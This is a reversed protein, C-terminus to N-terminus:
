NAGGGAYQLYFSISSTVDEEDPTKIIWTQGNTADDRGSNILLLNTSCQITFRYMDPPPKLRLFIFSGCLVNHLTGNTGEYDNMFQLTDNNVVIYSLQAFNNFDHSITVSCTKYRAGVEGSGGAEPLGAATEKAANIRAIYDDLTTNNEQLQQKNSM